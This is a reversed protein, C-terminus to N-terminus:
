IRKLSGGCADLIVTMGQRQSSTLNIEQLLLTAVVDIACSVDRAILTPYSSHSLNPEHFVLPEETKVQTPQGPRAKLAEGKVLKM